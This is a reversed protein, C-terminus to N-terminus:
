QALACGHQVGDIQDLGGKETARQAAKGRRRGAEVGVGGQQVGQVYVVEGADADTSAVDLTVTSGSKANVAPAFLPNVCAQSPTVFDDLGGLMVAGAFRGDAMELACLAVSCDTTRPHVQESDSASTTRTRHSDTPRLPTNRTRAVCKRTEHCASDAM